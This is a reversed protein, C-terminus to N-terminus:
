PLFPLVKKEAVAIVDKRLFKLDYGDSTRIKVNVRGVSVLEGAYLTRGEFNVVARRGKLPVLESTPRWEPGLAGRDTGNVDFWHVLEM